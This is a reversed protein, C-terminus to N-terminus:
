NALDEFTAPEPSIVRMGRPTVEIVALGRQVLGSPLLRFIGATGAFGNPATLADISFDAGGEGGALVAALATADYALTALAHPPRGFVAKYRAEFAARAAPPPGALWAGVLAPERGLGPEHWGAIGLLRVKPTDIDYFPLLPAIAKLPAGGEPLLVADFGLRGITELGELRRLAQRTVEDQAGLLADRQRKLAGRRAEYSALRRVAFSVDEQATGYIEVQTLVGGAQAAAGRLGDAVRRGYATDPVLAAFREIGRSRAYSVVRRIQQAPLFGTVFIGAGAVSRDNSFSVLNIRAARALPAVDAVARAFLPGLLLKAGDELASIAAARAGEATGRTDRPLLAFDDGAVEFVALQAADLLSRGVAAEAGSLPLLLGIRVKPQVGPPPTLIVSPAEPPPAPPVAPVLRPPPATVTM